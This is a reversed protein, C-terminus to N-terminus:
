HAPNPDNSEAAPKNTTAFIGARLPKGDPLPPTAVSSEAVDAPAQWNSLWREMQKGAAERGGLGFSLAGAVAVMGLTLGFALNLAKCLMGFAAQRVSFQLIMVDMATM